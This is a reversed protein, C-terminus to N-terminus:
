PERSDDRRAYTERAAAFVASSASALFLTISTVFVGIVYDRLRSPWGVSVFTMVSMVGILASIAM